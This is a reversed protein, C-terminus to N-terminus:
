GVNIIIILFFKRCMYQYNNEKWYIIKRIERYKKSISKSFCSKKLKITTMKRGDDKQCPQKKHIEKKEKILNIQKKPERREEKKLTSTM